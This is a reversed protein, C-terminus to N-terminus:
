PVLELMKELAARAWRATEEEVHIVNAVDGKVLSELSWLLHRPDIRYMTSCLCAMGSLSVVKKDPNRAALRQVLNIETGVAWVSGPPSDTVARIIKETSGWLDAKSVVEFSCEPHAIIKVGPIEERRQDCHEPLFRAHVSCFGKWLVVKARDAGADLNEAALARPDWVAMDDLSIGMAFGVNRGLHEDPLFLIRRGGDLAWRYVSEANSSTCVCGGHRGVFAKIAASSNMYTIPVWRDEGDGATLADWAVETQDLNAMDAMSCGATLDPLIVTQHEPTLIDASEAMFHVGCFVVYKAEPRKEALRALKFSDGTFDAWRIVDDAQYHHGLIVLDSGLAEKARAMRAAIEEPDTERYEAALPAQLTM